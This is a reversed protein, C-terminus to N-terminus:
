AEKGFGVLPPVIARAVLFPRFAFGSLALAFGCSTLAFEMLLAGAQQVHSPLHGGM